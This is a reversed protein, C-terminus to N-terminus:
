SWTWWSLRTPRIRILADHREDPDYQAYRRNLLKMESSPADPDVVANGRIMLWGLRTWEEDWHDVLLTVRDDRGINRVRRLIQVTKPKHDIPSLIEGGVRVFVVPVSHPSGDPAITTMVARRETELLSAVPEPLEEFSGATGSPM